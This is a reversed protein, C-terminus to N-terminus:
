PRVEKAMKANRVQEILLAGFERLKKILLEFLDAIGFMFHAIHEVPDPPTGIQSPHDEQMDSLKRHCNRCVIAEEDGHGRGPIHHRELCRPDDEVCICCRPNNPGLRELARQHRAERKREIEDM